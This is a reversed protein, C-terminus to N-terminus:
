KSKQKVFRYGLGLAWFRGTGDSYNIADPQRVGKYAYQLKLEQVVKFGWVQRIDMFLELRNWFAYGIKIGLVPVFQITNYSFAEDPALQEFDIPLIDRPITGIIGVGKPNSKQFSISLSPQIIFKTKSFANWEVGFDFRHIYTGAWGSDGGGTDNKFYFLTAVPYKHYSGSILLGNKIFHGYSIQYFWDDNGGVGKGLVEPHLKVRSKDTLYTPGFGFSVM